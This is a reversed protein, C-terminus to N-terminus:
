QNKIGKLRMVIEQPSSAASQAVRPHIYEKEVLEVLSDVLSQMGMDRQALIVEELEHERGDLIYKRTPPAQLLVEVAPVRPPEPLLTPLLSQYIFARMQYALLHRIAQREDSEFLDYIRGFAQSASSAHITGFVLHGTEAAQLAAAFTEKDRMEGILVVDPAERVLARLGTAFDPVDIGVERQSVIAKDDSFLYEVPDEITIIHCARTENIQQLMSAITTSKGSGTVGCILVLGQSALAVQSLVPPLHLQEYNFVAENVLRAAVASRSRTRFINVRFRTRDNLDVGMDISGHQAYYRWQSPSLSEEVTKEFEDTDLPVSDLAKLEGRLRLRPVQGGRLLLDSAEYKAAAEFFKRLHSKTISRSEDVYEILTPEALADQAM